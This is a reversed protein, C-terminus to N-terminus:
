KLRHVIPNISIKQQWCLCSKLHKLANLQNRTNNILFINQRSTNTDTNNTRSTQQQDTAANSPNSSYKMMHLQWEGYHISVPVDENIVLIICCMTSTCLLYIFVPAESMSCQIRVTFKKWYILSAKLLYFDIYLSM